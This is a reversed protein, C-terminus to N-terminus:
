CIMQDASLRYKTRDTGFTDTGQQGTATLLLPENRYVFVAALQQLKRQHINRSLSNNLKGRFSAILMDSCEGCDSKEVSCVPNHDNAHHTNDHIPEVAYHGDQGFCLVFGHPAMCVVILVALSIIMAITRQVPVMNMIDFKRCNEIIDIGSLIKM